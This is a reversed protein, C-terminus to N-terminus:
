VQHLHTLNDDLYSEHWQDAKDWDALIGVTDLFVAASM